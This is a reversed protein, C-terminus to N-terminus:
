KNTQEHQAPQSHNLTNVVQGRYGAFPGAGALLTSVQNLFRQKLIGSKSPDRCLVRYSVLLKKIMGILGSTEQDSRCEVHM